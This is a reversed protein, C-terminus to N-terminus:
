YQLKKFVFVFVLLSLCLLCLSLFEFNYVFLCLLLTFLLKSHSVFRGVGTVFFSSGCRIATLFIHKNVQLKELHPMRPLSDLSSMPLNDLSSTSTSAAEPCTLVLSLTKGEEEEEEGLM